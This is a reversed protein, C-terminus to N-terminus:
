KLDAEQSFRNFTERHESIIEQTITSGYDRICIRGKYRCFNEYNYFHHLDKQLFIVNIFGVYPNKKNIFPDHFEELLNEGIPTINFFGFFSFHTPFLFPLNRNKLFFIYESWNELLVKVIHPLTVPFSDSKSTLFIKVWTWSKRNGWILKCLKKIDMKPFKVAFKPFIWVIRSTGYKVVPQPLIGLWVLLKFLHM